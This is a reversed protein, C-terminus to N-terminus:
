KLLKNLEQEYEEALTDKYGDWSKVLRHKKDFLMIKPFGSVHMEQALDRGQYLAKSTMGYDKKVQEVAASDEDIFVGIIEAQDAFKETTIDLAPLSRKCWPCSTVMLAILVPKGSHDTSVWVEESGSVPLETRGLKPVSPFSTMCAGLLLCAATIFLLTKKKM